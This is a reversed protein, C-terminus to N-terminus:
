WDFCMFSGLNEYAKSRFPVLKDKAYGYECQSQISHISRVRFELEHAPLVVDELRATDVIRKVLVYRLLHSTSIARSFRCRLTLSM